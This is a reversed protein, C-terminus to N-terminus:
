TFPFGGTQKFWDYDLVVGRELKINEFYKKYVQSQVLSTFYGAYLTTRDSNQNARSTQGHEQSRRRKPIGSKRATNKTRPM